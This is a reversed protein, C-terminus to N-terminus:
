VKNFILLNWGFHCYIKLFNSRGQKGYLIQPNSDDTLFVSSFTINEDTVAGYHRLGDCDRQTISHFSM